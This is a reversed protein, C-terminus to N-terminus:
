QSIAKLKISFGNSYDIQLDANIQSARAKINTLGLGATSVEKNLTGNDTISMEILKNNKLVSILVETANSHKVVNTIAEKFILYLNQRIVNTLPMKLVKPHKIHYTIEKADLTEAAFENMRDVLSTWNNKRTDLAWVADRMRLMASRSLASIRELKPKDEPSAQRELIESQMALGTLISGVDDHLDMSIKTRLLEIFKQRDLEIKFYYRTIGYVLLALTGFLLLFFWWTRYWAEKVHIPISLVKDVWIGNGTSAKVKLTYKGPPLTTFSITNDPTQQSWDKDFGELKTKYRHKNPYNYNILEYNLSLMRDNYNLKIPENKYNLFDYGSISDTDNKLFSYQSLIINSVRDKEKLEKHQELLIDPNFIHLGNSTAALIENTATKKTLNYVAIKDVLFHSADYHIHEKTTFNYYGLGTHNGYWVANNNEPIFSNFRTANFQKSDLYYILEKTKLNILGLQSPNRFWGKNNGIYQFDHFDINLNLPKNQYTFGDKLHELVGKNPNMKVLGEEKAIWLNGEEDEDIAYTPQKNFDIIQNPDEYSREIGLTLPDLKSFFYSSGTNLLGNMWLTGDAQKFVNYVKAMRLKNEIKPSLNNQDDFKYHASWTTHIKTSDVIFDGAKSTMHYWPIMNIKDTEADIIYTFVDTRLYINGNPHVVSKKLNTLYTDNGIVAWVQDVQYKNDKYISHEPNDTNVLFSKFLPQRKFIKFIGGRKNGWITGNSDEVIIKINGGKGGLTKILPEKFDLFDNTNEDFMFLQSDECGIWLRNQSDQYILKVRTGINKKICQNKQKIKGTLIHKKFTKTKPDYIEFLTDNIRWLRNLNDVCYTSCDQEQIENEIVTGDFSVKKGEPNIILVDGRIFPFYLTGKIDKIENDLNLSYEGLHKYLDAVYEFSKGNNSKYVVSEKKKLHATFAWIAKNEDQYLFDISVDEPFDHLKKSVKTTPNFLFLSNKKFYLIEDNIFIIKGNYRFEHNKLGLSELLNVNELFKGNYRYFDDEDHFWLQGKGDVKMKSIVRDISKPYEIDYLELQAFTTQAFLFLFLYLLYRM